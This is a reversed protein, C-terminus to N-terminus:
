PKYRGLIGQDFASLSPSDYDGLDSIFLNVVAPHGLVVDQNVPDFGILIAHSTNVCFITFLLPIFILLIRRKM